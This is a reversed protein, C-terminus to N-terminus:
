NKRKLSSKLQEFLFVGALGVALGMLGSRWLQSSRVPSIDSAGAAPEVVTIVQDMHDSTADIANIRDLVSSYLALAGEVERELVNYEIASEALRLSESEVLALQQRLGDKELELRRFEPELRGAETKMAEVIRLEVRELMGREVELEPHTEGHRFSLSDIKMEIEPLMKRYRQVEESNWISPVQELEARSPDPGFSKVLNLDNELRILNRDLGAKAESISAIKTILMAQREEMSIVLNSNRRFDILAVEANRLKIKLRAAENTLVESAYRNSNLRRNSQQTIFGHAIWNVLNRALTPDRNDVRVDFLETEPRLSATVRSKLYHAMIELSGPSANRGAFDENNLLDQDVIVQRMLKMNSISQVLTNIKRLYYDPLDSLYESDLVDSDMSQSVRITAVARYRPVGHSMTNGLFAVVVFAVIIVRLIWHSSPSQEPLDNQQEAM